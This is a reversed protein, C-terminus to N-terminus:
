RRQEMRVSCLGDTTDYRELDEDWELRECGREGRRRM